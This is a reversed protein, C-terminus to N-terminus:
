IDKLNPNVLKANKPWHNQFAARRATDATSRGRYLLRHRSCLGLFGIDELPQPDKFISLNLSMQSPIHHFREMDLRIMKTLDGM